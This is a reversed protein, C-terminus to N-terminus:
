TFINCNTSISFNTLHMFIVYKDCPGGEMERVAFNLSWALFKMQDSCKLIPNIVEYAVFDIDKWREPFGEKANATGAKKWKRDRLHLLSDFPFNWCNFIFM